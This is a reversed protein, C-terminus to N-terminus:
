EELIKLFAPEDLCTINLAKAKEYKSGPSEGLVLYNTKNSISSSVKAGLEQLRNKAEDRSMSSLTGTIVFSKGFLSLSKKESVSIVPWNIGSSLLKEILKQNHKERFFAVIHGAVVPGIDHILELSELTSNKLNEITQFADALIVATAEGVERMGLAFLFRPLTTAKSKEIAALLNDTSKEGLRPLAILNERKLFFLDAVNSIVNNEVLLDILKDGLGEIDMARRSVFHKITERLQASCYLGGMCRLVAEGEEKIVDSGCVPCKTPMTIKQARHNRKELIVRVVEPIVDGARRVLVTDGVRIDKRKMEDFNHLTANSVTVGSVFVPKLRAVPTIAGTRCVQFEIQEIETTKEEAPFKHAIAWRPARSVFGLREQLVLQDVKYVVGDIEFPLKERIKLMNQYYKECMGIGQAISINKAIPLGWSKLKNLIESQKQFCNKGSLVVLAYAYFNLPRKATISSDLQRLSGSAANRPNSFKKENNKEALKNLKEFGLIPMFIEGRIECQEPYDHGLLKLPISQITRINQTVNEGVQGDGRTAAKKLEGNEYYLSIAVGDLKPECVFEIESNDKLFKQIREYFHNLEEINFANELSLMPIAHRVSQFADLPAAGVRQTPSDQTILAPNKSELTQLARFLIDYEADSIIPDDLVYYRYNHDRIKERLSIIKSSNKDLVTKM